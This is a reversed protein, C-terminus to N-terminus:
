LNLEIRSFNEHYNESNLTAVNNLAVCEHFNEKHINAGSPTQSNNGGRFYGTIFYIYKYSTHVYIYIYM